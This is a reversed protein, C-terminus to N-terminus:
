EFICNQKENETAERVTLSYQPHLDGDYSYVNTFLWIDMELKADEPSSALLFCELGKDDPKSNPRKMTVVYHGM